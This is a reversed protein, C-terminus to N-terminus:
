ESFSNLASPLSLSKLLEAFRADKRIPELSRETPVLFLFSDREQLARGFYEFAKHTFGLEAAIIGLFTCPVYQESSRREADSLLNEAEVRKGAKCLAAALGYTFYRREAPAISRSQELWPLGQDLEGSYVYAEGLRAFAPWHYPGVEVARKGYSIAQVYDGRIAYLRCLHQNALVSFPDVELSHQLESIAEGVRGLGLLVMAHFYRVSPPAPNLELAIRFESLAGAWDFEYLGKFLGLVGHAEALHPDAFIARKAAEMGGPMVNAPPICGTMVQALATHALEVWAPAYGPEIAVVRRMYEVLRGMSDPDWKHLHFTGKLYFLHADENRTYRRILREGGVTLKLTGVISRAIDEQADLLDTLERDYQEAWLCNEDAANVLQASVRIRNGSRRYSGDLVITAKLRKAIENLSLTRCRFRSSSARAIVRLGPIKTLGSILEDALGDSFYDDTGDPSLNV